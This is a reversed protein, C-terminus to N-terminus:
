LKFGDVRVGGFAIGLEAVKLREDKSLTRKTEDTSTNVVIVQGGYEHYIQIHAPWNFLSHKERLCYPKGDKLILEYSNLSRFDNAHCTHFQGDATVVV